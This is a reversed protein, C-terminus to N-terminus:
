KAVEWRFEFSYGGRDVLKAVEKNLATSLAEESDASIEKAKRYTKFRGSVTYEIRAVHNAMEGDTRGPM